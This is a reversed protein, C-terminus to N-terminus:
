CVVIRYLCTPAFTSRYFCIFLCISLMEQAGGVCIHEKKRMCKYFSFLLSMMWIILFARRQKSRVWMCLKTFWSPELILHSETLLLVFLGFLGMSFRCDKTNHAFWTHTLCILVIIIIITIIAFHLWIIIFRQVSEMAWSAQSCMCEKVNIRLKVYQNQRILCGPWKQKINAIAIKFPWVEFM